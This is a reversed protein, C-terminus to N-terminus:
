DRDVVLTWEDQQKITMDDQEFGADTLAEGIGNLIEGYTGHYSVFSLFDSLVSAEEESLVLGVAKAVNVEAM